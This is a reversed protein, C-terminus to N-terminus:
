NLQLCRSYHGKEKGKIEKLLPKTKYCEEKALHCRTVFRCGDPLDSLNPPEGQIQYLSKKKVGEKFIWDLNPICNLLSQTYPHKPHFIVDQTKGKEVIQGAYMVAVKEAIRAVVGFDHTIMLIATGFERNIKVLLELIQLQVTPDLASTPEDAIILDPDCSLSMAIVVRQRLGGSLQHPFSEFIRLPDDIGMQSLLTLAKEKAEMRTLNTKELIIEVIQRGIKYSPDLSTMANQAILSIKKGRIKQMDKKGLAILNEGELEVKGSYEILLNKPLMQLISQITMTKGSGSEGVIAVIEGKEMTFDIDEIVTLIGEATKIKTTLHDVKLLPKSKLLTVSSM